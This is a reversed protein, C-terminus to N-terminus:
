STGAAVRRRDRIPRAEVIVGTEDSRGGEPGADDGREGDDAAHQMIVTSSPTSSAIRSLWGIQPCPITRMRTIEGKKTMGVTEASTQFFMNMSGTFPSKACRHFAKPAAGTSHSESTEMPEIMM